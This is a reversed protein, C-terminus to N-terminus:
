FDPQKNGSLICKKSIFDYSYPYRMERLENKGNTKNQKVRLFITKVDFIRM